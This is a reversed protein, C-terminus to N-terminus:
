LSVLGCNAVLYDRVANFSSRSANAAFNLGDVLASSRFGLAVRANIIADTVGIVGDGDVDLSCAEFGHSGGHFRAVCFANGGCSGGCTDSCTGGVVIKGDAQILAGSPLDFDNAIGVAFKGNAATTSPGDFSRDFSGDANLRALCFELGNISPMGNDCHGALVIRGDPQVSVAVLIENGAGLITMRFDGPQSGPSGSFAPDMEGNALLRLGCIRYESPSTLCYAAIVIGGDPAMAVGTAASHSAFGSVAYVNRGNGVGSPGDFSLDYSGNANLRLVCIQSYSATLSCRGVVVIKGDSQLAAAAPAEGGFETLMLMFRGDGTGVGTGAANPGDFTVDYSGGELVRTLCIRDGANANCRSVVVIKGDPQRLMAVAESSVNDLFYVVRGNGSVGGDFNTNFSGDSNLSAMCLRDLGGVACQAAIVIRGDPAVLMSKARSDTSGDFQFAFKGNASGSPVGFTADLTGNPLLRVVCVESGTATNCGGAMLIKGDPQLALAHASPEGMALPLLNKVRGNSGFTADFEGATQASAQVGISLAAVFAACAFAIGITRFVSDGFRRIQQIMKFVGREENPQKIRCGGERLESV